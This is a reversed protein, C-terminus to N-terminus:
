NNPQCEFSYQMTGSYNGPIGISDATIEFYKIASSEVIDTNQFTVLPNQANAIMNTEINQLTCQISDRGNEHMLRIGGFDATNTVYVKISYGDELMANNLQVDATNGNALDIVAPITINYSSYIHTRIETEGNGASLDEAFATASVSMMLVITTILAIAKKM